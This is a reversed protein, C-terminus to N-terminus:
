ERPAKRPLLPLESEFHVKEGKPPVGPKGDGARFQENGAFSHAFERRTEAFRNAEREKVVLHHNGTPLTRRHSIRVSRGDPHEWLEHEHAYANDRQQSQGVRGFGIDRLRGRLDERKGHLEVGGLFEHIRSSDGAVMKKTHPIAGEGDLEHHQAVSNKVSSLTNQATNVWSNMLAFAAKDPEDHKESFVRDIYDGIKRHADTFSPAVSGAGYHGSHTAAEKLHRQAEMLRGAIEHRGKAEGAARLAEQARKGHDLGAQLGIDHHVSDGLRAGGEGAAHRKEWAALAAQRRDPDIGVFAKEISESGSRPDFDYRASALSKGFLGGVVKSVTNKM